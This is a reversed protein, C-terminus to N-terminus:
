FFAEGTASYKDYHAKISQGHKQVDHYYEDKSTGVETMIENYRDFSNLIRRYQDKYHRVQNQIGNDFDIVEWRLRSIERDQNDLIIRDLAKKQREQEKQLNGVQSTMEKKFESVESEISSNFSKGLYRFIAKIPNFKIAPTIDIFIGLVLVIIGIDAYGLSTLLQQLEKM